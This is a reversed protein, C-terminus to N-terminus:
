WSIWLPMIGAKEAVAMRCAIREVCKESDLLKEFIDLTPDFLELPEKQQENNINLDDLKFSSFGQGTPLRNGTNSSPVLTNTIGNPLRNGNITMGGPILTNTTVGPLLTGGSGSSASGGTLGGSSLIPLATSALLTSQANEQLTPISTPRMRLIQWISPLLQLIFLPFILINFFKMLKVILLFKFFIAAMFMKLKFVLLFLIKQFGIAQLKFLSLKIFALIGIKNWDIKHEKSSMPKPYYNSPGITYDHEHETPYRERIEHELNNNSESPWFSDLYSGAPNNVSAWRNGVMQNEKKKDGYDGLNYPSDYSNHYNYPSIEQAKLTEREEHLTDM